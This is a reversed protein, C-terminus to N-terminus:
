WGNYILYDNDWDFTHLIHVLNFISYEYKWSHTLMEDRSNPAINLMDLFECDWERLNSQMHTLALSPTEDFASIINRHNELINTRFEEIVHLLFEKSIIIFEDDGLEFNYFHEYGIDENKYDAYKGLEFLETHEPPRAPSEVHEMLEEETKYQLYKERASKPIKSLRLRYGM